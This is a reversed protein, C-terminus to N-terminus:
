SGFRHRWSRVITRGGVHSATRWFNLPEVVLMTRRLGGVWRAGFETHCQARSGARHRRGAAVGVSWAVAGFGESPMRHMIQKYFERMSRRNRVPALGPTRTASGPGPGSRRPSRPLESGGLCRGSHQGGTRRIAAYHTPHQLSFLADEGASRQDCEVSLRQECIVVDDPRWSKIQSMQTTAGHTPNRAPCAQPLSVSEPHPARGLGHFAAAAPPPRM